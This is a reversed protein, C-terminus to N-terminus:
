NIVFPFSLIFRQGLLQRFNWLKINLTHAHTSTIGVLFGMLGSLYLFCVFLCILWSPLRTITIQLVATFCDTQFLLRMNIILDFCVFDNDNAAAAALAVVCCFQVNHLSFIFNNLIIIMMTTTTTTTHTNKMFLWSHM